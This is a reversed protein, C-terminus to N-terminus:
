SKANAKVWRMIKPHSTLKPNKGIATQLIFFAMAQPFRVALTIADDVQGLILENILASSLIYREGQDEPLEVFEPNSLFHSLPPIQIDLFAKFDLAVNASLHGLAVNHFAIKENDTAPKGSKFTVNFAESVREWGRANAFVDRADPEIFTNFHEPRFEIYSCIVPDVGNKIAWDLWNKSSLEVNIVCMRSMLAAPIPNSFSRSTQLNGAAAICTQPHLKVGGATQRDHLIRFCAKQVDVDAHTIEDFFIFFGDKGKPVADTELPLMGMPVYTARSKDENFDIPGNLDTIELEGLRIDIFQLNNEEAFQKAIASKATAPHGLLLPVGGTFLSLTMTEYAQKLDLSTTLANSM